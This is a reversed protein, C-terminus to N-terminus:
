SKKTKVLKLNKTYHKLFKLKARRVKAQKVVEIDKIVPSYLPYIKEVGFGGKAIKRITVTCGSENGHKRAIVIGEFIQIREKEEGKEKKEKIKQHLRVTAGPVVKPYITKKAGTTETASAATKEEVIEATTPESTATTEVPETVTTEEPKIEDINQDQNTTTM